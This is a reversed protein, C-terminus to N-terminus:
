YIGGPDSRLTRMKRCTWNINYCLPPCLLLRLGQMEEFEKMIRLVQEFSLDQHGSEGLYCHRCQLNCRDTL